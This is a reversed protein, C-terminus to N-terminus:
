IQIIQNFINNFGDQLFKQSGSKKLILEFM